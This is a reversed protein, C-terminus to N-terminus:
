ESPWRYFDHIWIDEAFGMANLIATFEEEVDDINMVRLLNGGIWLLNMQTANMRLIEEDGAFVVVHRYGGGFMFFRYPRDIVHMELQPILAQWRTILAASEALYTRAEQPMRIHGVRYEVRTVEAQVFGNMAEVWAHAVAEGYEDDDDWTPLAINIDPTDLETCGTTTEGNPVDTQVAPSCAVLLLAMAALLCLLKKM